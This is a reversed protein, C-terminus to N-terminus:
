ERLTAETEEVSDKEKGAEEVSSKEKETGEGSGGASEVPEESETQVGRVERKQLEMFVQLSRAISALSNAQRRSSRVLSDMGGSMRDVALTIQCLWENVSVPENDYYYYPQDEPVPSLRSPGEGRDDEQNVAKEKGKAKKSPRVEAEETAKRKKPAGGAAKSKLVGNADLGWICAVKRVKCTNCTLGLRWPVKLKCAHGKGRCCPICRVELEDGSVDEDM